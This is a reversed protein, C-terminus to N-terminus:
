NQDVNVPPALCNLPCSDILRPIDTLPLDLIRLVGKLEETCARQVQLDPRLSANLMNALQVIAVLKPNNTAQDPTHHYHIVEVLADPLQWHTALFAGAEAHDIGLLEQEIEIVNTKIEHVRRYFLPAIAQVHQDLTAKGIDHLLGGMYAAQPETLGTTSAISEALTATGLAHYYLGGKCLSYGMATQQFFLELAAHIVFRILNDQGLYAVAHELSVITNSKTFQASNCIRLTRASLVQDKRLEKVIDDLNIDDENTLRLIKLAVQPIPKLQDISNHIEELSPAQTAQDRAESEFVVPEINCEGSKLDLSLVCSFFGGTESQTIVVEEDTLIEKVCDITKGGIDLSLDTASVPGVIAGGALCAELEGTAGAEKLRQLFLPLGTSAYKEPEHPKGPNLPKDLLLHLLGGIGSERDYIAVGVCTGLTASITEDSPGGIYSKGPPVYYKGFYSM